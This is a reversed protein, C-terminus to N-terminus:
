LAAGAAAQKEARARELLEAVEANDPAAAHLRELLVRAQEPKDQRYFVQAMGQMADHDDPSLELAQSFAAHAGDTDDLRLLAFGLGSSADSRAGPMQSAARFSNRALENNAQRLHVWGEAVHASYDLPQVSHLERLAADYEQQRFLRRARENALQRPTRDHKVSGDFQRTDVTGHKELYDRVNAARHLGLYCHIYVTGPTNIATEAAARSNREYDEGFRQGLISGMPFNHVEIGLEAARKKEEELLVAEYPVKPNLLSIITTVGEDKLRDMDAQVPYPGFVFRASTVSQQARWPQVVFSAPNLLVWVGAGFGLLGVVALAALWKNRTSKKM